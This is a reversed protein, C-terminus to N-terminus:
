EITFFTIFNQIYKEIRKKKKEKKLLGVNMVNECCIRSTLNISTRIQVWWKCQKKQGDIVALLLWGSLIQQSFFQSYLM